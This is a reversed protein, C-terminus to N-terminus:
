PQGAFKLLLMERVNPERFYFQVAGDRGILDRPVAFSARRSHVQHVGIHARIYFDGWAEVFMARRARDLLMQELVPREHPTYQVHEASELVAYDLPTVERVGAAPLEEWISTLFGIRVRSDLGAARSQRSCTSLSIQVRGFEGARVTIWVHDIKRPDPDTEIAVAAVEGAVTVYRDRLEYLHQPVHHRPKPRAL